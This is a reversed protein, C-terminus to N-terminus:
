TDYDNSWRINSIEQTEDLIDRLANLLPIAHELPAKNRGFWSKALPRIYCGWEKGEADTNSCCLWYENDDVFYEIFWGWDEYNPYTTIIGKQALKESLWFTLEAGYVHPNVQSDDPLFPKFLESSFDVGTEM